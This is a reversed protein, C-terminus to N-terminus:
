STLMSGSQVLACAGQILKRTVTVVYRNLLLKWFSPNIKDHRFHPYIHCKVGLLARKLFGFIFVVGPVYHDSLYELNNPNNNSKLLHKKKDGTLNGTPLKWCVPLKQAVQTVAIVPFLLFTVAM